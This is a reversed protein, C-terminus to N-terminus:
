CLTFHTYNYLDVNIFKICMIHLISVQVQNMEDDKQRLEAEHQENAVQM